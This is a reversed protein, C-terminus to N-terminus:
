NGVATSDVPYALSDASYVATSDLVGKEMEEVVGFDYRFFVYILTCTFLLLMIKWHKKILQTINTLLQDLQKVTKNANQLNFM